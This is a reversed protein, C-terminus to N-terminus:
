SYRRGFGREIARKKKKLEIISDTSRLVDGPSTSVTTLSRSSSHYRTTEGFGIDKETGHPLKTVLLDQLDDTSVISDSSDFSGVTSVTRADSQCKKVFITKPTKDVKIDKRHRGKKVAASPQFNHEQTHIFEIVDMPFINDISHDASTFRCFEELDNQIQCAFYRSLIEDNMLQNEM